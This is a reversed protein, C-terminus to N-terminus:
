DTDHYTGASETIYAMPKVSCEADLNTAHITYALERLSIPSVERRGLAEEIPEVREREENGHYHISREPRAAHNRTEVLEGIHIVEVLLALFRTLPTASALLGLGSAYSPRTRSVVKIIIEPERPNHSSLSVRYEDNPCNTSM